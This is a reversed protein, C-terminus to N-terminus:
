AHIRQRRRALAAVGALGALMMAWTGAEPVATVTATVFGSNNFSDTDLFALYLTGATAAKGSYGTGIKFWTNDANDNAGIKGILSFYNIGTVPDIGYCLTGNADFVGCGGGDWGGTASIDLADGVQLVIGTNLPNADNTTVALSNTKAHVDFSQTAAQAAMPLAAALVVAMVPKGMNLVM